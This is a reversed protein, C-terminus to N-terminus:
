RAYISPATYSGTAKIQMVAGAGRQRIGTGFGRQYYADQLPYDNSRGKVLRLGRLGPNAHERIGIPNTLSAQGGTAFAVMYRTPIYDEQVITATGYTGIVNMGRLTAAARQGETLVERPVLISPQGQATVFDYRGSGGNAISRFNRIADGETKNVMIVLDAGNTRTYGHEEITDILAELDGPDVTVAGSVLYHSHSGEFSTAGVSPPVTGDGNYFAYVNYAQKKISAVRNQDSFLTQMVDRFMNRNDAELVASNISRIQEASAEALFRWTFRNATDYWEFPFGMQFYEGETRMSRPVGFESAVEFDDGEGFQPVTEVPQTVTYTLFDILRQRNANRLAVAQQFEAWIVNLDVGDATVTIVDGETNFGQPVGGFLGLDALAQDDLLPRRSTMLANHM